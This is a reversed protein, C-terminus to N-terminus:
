IMVFSEILSATVLRWGDVLVFLLLKFPLSVLVPPLMMMGMSILVASVVMDVVLFPLYIKFGMLFATKLESLMFAPILSTTAVDDWTEPDEESAYGHFLLVDEENGQYEIQLIMFDRIPVLARDAAEQQPLEGNLYPQLADDHVRQWTPAMIVCTMFLSLGIIVQNPPLSNTGIAQRLLGLVIIIRTFSTAMVLLAPALSLVTMLVIVQLTAPLNERDTVDPLTMSTPQQANGYIDDFGGSQAAAISPLLAVALFALLTLLKAAHADTRM